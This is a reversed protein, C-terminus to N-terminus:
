ISNDLHLNPVAFALTSDSFKLFKLEFNEISYAKLVDPKPRAPSFFNAEPRRAKPSPGPKFGGSSFLSLFLAALDQAIARFHRMQCGSDRMKFTGERM